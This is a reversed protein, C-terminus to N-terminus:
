KNNRYCDWGDKEIGAVWRAAMKKAGELDHDRYNGCEKATTAPVPKDWVAVKRLVNLMHGAIYEEDHDGFVTFYFGTRCGMPSFDIVGKMEDRIYEAVLHELTHVTGTEMFEVNPQTFRIDFKSVVDGKPGTKKSALRVFPATVKTHDLNFSDVNYKKQESM